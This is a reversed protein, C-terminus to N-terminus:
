DEPFYKKLAAKADEDGLKAANEWFWRAKDMDKEVGIGFYYCRAVREDAAPCDDTYKSVDDYLRFAEEEDKKVGLGLRYCDGLGVNSGYDYGKESGYFMQDDYDFVAQEFWFAASQYNQETGIGYFYANGVKTCAVMSGRRAASLYWYLAKKEDRKLGLGESYMDGIIRAASAGKWIQRRNGHTCKALPQLLEYVRAYDKEVTLGEYYFLALDYRAYIYGNEVACKYWDFTQKHKEQAVALNKEPEEGRRVKLEADRAEEHCKAALQMQKEASDRYEFSYGDKVAQKILKMGRNENKKCGWGNALCKGLWFKAFASDKDGAFAKKSCEYAQEYYQQSKEHNSGVGWGYYYIYGLWHLANPDGREAAIKYWKVARRYAVDVSLSRDYFREGWHYSAGLICCAENDGAMARVILDHERFSLTELAQKAQECGGEAAKEFLSHAKHDSVETGHGYYCCLGAYYAALANGRERAKYFYKYAQKSDQPIDQGEYYILGLKLCAEADGCDALNQM